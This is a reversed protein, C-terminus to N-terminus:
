VWLTVAQYHGSFLKLRLELLLSEDGLHSKSFRLLSTMAAIKFTRSIQSAEQGSSPLQLNRGPSKGAGPSLFQRWDPVPLRSAHCHHGSSTEHLSAHGLNRARHEHHQGERHRLVALRLVPRAKRQEGGGPSFFINFM